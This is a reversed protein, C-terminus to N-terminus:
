ASEHLIVVIPEGLIRWDVTTSYWAPIREIKLDAVMKEFEARYAKSMQNEM